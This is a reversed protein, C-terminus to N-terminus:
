VSYAGEWVKKFFCTKNFPVRLHVEVLLGAEGDISAAVQNSVKFDWRMDVTFCDGYPIDSMTQCTEFVM